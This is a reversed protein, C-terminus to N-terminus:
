NFLQLLVGPRQNSILLSQNSLQAQVQFSQLRASEEALDAEVLASVGQEMKDSLNTLFNQQRVLRRETFGIETFARNVKEQAADLVELATTTSFGAQDLPLLSELLEILTAQERREPSGVYYQIGGTPLWGEALYTNVQDFATASFVENYALIKDIQGQFESGPSYNKVAGNVVGNGNIRGIGIGGPHDWLIGVGTATDILQGNVFARFEGTASIDGDLVLQATYRTNERISATVERYSWHQGPDGTPLNYGGFVLNGNRISINLGRVNGGEEYIVQETTIDSGTEFSIAFTRQATGGSGNTGVNVGNINPPNPTSVQLLGPAGNIVQSNFDMVAGPFPPIVGSVAPTKIGLGMGVLELTQFDYTSTANRSAGIIMTERDTGELLNIGNFSTGRLVKRVEDIQGKIVEELQAEGIGTELAVIASKINLLARDIAPQASQAAKVAGIAYLLNDRIGDQVTIDSRQTNAVLFFAANDKASQVKLGTSIRQQVGELSNNVVRLTKLATQASANTLLV